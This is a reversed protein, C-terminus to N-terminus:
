PKRSAYLGIRLYSLVQRIAQRADRDMLLTRRWAPDSFEKLLASLSRVGDVRLEDFFARLYDISHLPNVTSQIVEFGAGEYIARWEGEQLYEVDAGLFKSAFYRLQAPPPTVFTAENDGFVGNPKLVRYVESAVKAKECFILVSEAIAADFTDPPFPLAHADAEIVKVKNSVKERAVRKRAEELVAPTIDVAAVDVQYEKALLCAAYGTGCGVDLVYQGPSIGCWEILQRTAKIGGIHNTLGFKEWEDRTTFFERENTTERGKSAMM